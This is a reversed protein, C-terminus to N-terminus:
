SIHAGPFSLPNIKNRNCKRCLEIVDAQNDHNLFDMFDREYCYLLLDAVLPACNTAMPIGVIKRCLKPELDLIFIIWSIPYPTACMRVHGFHIGVKTLPLLSLREPM